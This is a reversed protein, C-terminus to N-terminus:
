LFKGLFFLASLVTVPKVQKTLLKGLQEHLCEPPDPRVDDDRLAGEHAQRHLAEHRREAPRVLDEQDADNGHADLLVLAMRHGPHPLRQLAPLLADQLLGILQLPDQFRLFLAARTALVLLALAARLSLGRLPLRLTSQLLGLSSLLPLCLLICFLLCLLVRCRWCLLLRGLCRRVLFLGPFLAILLPWRPHGLLHCHLFQVVDDPLHHRRRLKVRVQLEIRAGAEEM